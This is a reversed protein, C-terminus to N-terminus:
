CMHYSTELDYDMLLASKEVICDQKTCPAPTGLTDIISSGQRM